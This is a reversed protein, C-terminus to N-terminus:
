MYIYITIIIIIIIKGSLIWNGLLFNMQTVM